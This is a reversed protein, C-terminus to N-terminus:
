LLGTTRFKRGQLGGPGQCAESSAQQWFGSSSFALDTWEVTVCVIHVAFFAAVYKM